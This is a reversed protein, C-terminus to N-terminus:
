TSISSYDFANELIVQRALTETNFRAEEQTTGYALVGPLEIAEAIWRGDEEFEFDFEMAAGVM